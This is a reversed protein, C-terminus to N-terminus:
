GHTGGPSDDTARLQALVAGMTDDDIPSVPFRPDAATTGAPEPGEPTLEEAVAALEGLTQHDFFHRPQLRWGERTARSVVLLSLISDGGLEFFNDTVAVRDVGLVEAWVRALVREAPTQPETPAAPASRTGAPAPLARRDVKGSTGLPLEPLWVWLAPVLAAPLSRAAFARMEGDEPTAPGAEAPRDPREHGAAVLYAVLRTGTGEDDRGTVVCQGVAPHGLLAREVEGPEVRVGRIKLQGDLRGLYEIAGDARRRALDGTRYLRAGPPGDPDPVFSEATLGPRGTYGLALQVGGLHLEGVVGAPVRRGGADLIEVTTNPVPRGIPVPAEGPVCRHRTVDVAAETPGYMNHVTVGPLAAAARDVLTVDLAEGSCVLNRLARPASDVRDLVPGLMSPVFHVTGIREEDLLELLHLPDRHADPEAVVLCGGVTLPWFLEWVSVDFGAPTKHLVRAAADTGLAETMWALRNVVARHQVAVGKPRGTSGSTFLVYALSDPGPGGSRGQRATDGTGPGTIREGPGVSLDAGAEACLLARREEPDAPDLPLYAGGTLVVAHVAVVLDLGRPLVVGVTRGAGAGHARLREALGTVRDWFDQYSIDRGQWRVACARPTRAVQAAVLEPLTGAVPRAPGRAAAAAAPEATGDWLPLTDIGAAPEAVAGSLVATLAETFRAVTQPEYLDAAYEVLCSLESGDDAFHFELDFKAMGTDPLGFGEIGSRSQRATERLGLVVQYVPNRATSRQPRLEEVLAEFPLDARGYADLCVQRVRDLLGAFSPGGGADVRMALTNVFFGVSEHLDPHERGTVPAGVVLDDQGTWRYLATDLAALLVMYLTADHQRALARVGTTLAPALTFEHRGGRHSQAPPRPRDPPLTTLEPAGDLRDRWHAGLEERRTGDLRGRQWAAFDPYQVAVEPLVAPRGERAADILELLDRVLLGNSWADTVAHHLFLGLVLDDDAPRVAHVRLLPPRGLDFPVAATRDLLERAAAEADPHDTLDTVEVQPEVADADHRVQVPRGDREVLGVRLVEHRRILDRVAARLVEDGVPRRLRLTVPVTYLGPRGVIREIVWLREQAFSAPPDGAGGLHRPIPASAREDPDARRAAAVRASLGAVTPEALLDALELKIEFTERVKLLLQVALLSTGGAGFFDEGVGVRDAGLLASWFGAIVEETPNRPPEATTRDEGPGAPAPLASRDLKGHATVPLRDLWVVASPLLHEPLSRAAFARAEAAPLPEAVPVLYAVLRREGGTAVPATVVAERVGPHTTLVAALEGPEVRVGRIKVQDDGRGLFELRGDPRWRALDGTRYLRSGPPGFPDPVFRDATLGPRGVYGRGVCIGGLLLEGPVGVPVPAGERDLVRATTNPLPTGITAVPGAEPGPPATIVAHCQDDSSETVGYTNLMPVGPHAALWRAVLETPLADGTPVLWRLPGLDAAQPDALLLAIVSPVAQLVTVGGDRVEAALLAPDIAADPGVVHVRGGALLPAICQWVVVDFTAPGNQALVDGPGFGVDTLKALMHNRMGTHCIMAGKPVGTTGSTFLIYALSDGGIEVRPATAPEDAHAAPDIPVPTVRQGAPLAALLEAVAGADADLDAVLVAAGSRRLVELRRAVPQGLDLPVFAGGAQWSALVATVFGIGRPAALAVVTEPGVGEARLRHALRNARRMLEAYRVQETGCSVAIADPHAAATRAVLEPVLIGSEPDPEVPGTSLREIREREVADLVPLRTVPRDPDAAAGEALVRLNGLLQRATAEDFLDANYELELSLGDDDERASLTLDFQATGNYPAEAVRVDVGPLSPPPVLPNQLILMAQFVPHYATTRRPAVAEVVKEFPLGRRDLSEVSEAATRALLQRFSPDGSLDVRLVLTDVFFGIVHEFDPNGRDATPTGIVLDDQGGLRSLVTAYLALLTPFLTTRAGRALATLEAVTATGLRDRVRGGRHSQRAPRPRDAPLALLEPAGALKARWHEQAATLREGAVARRQRAAYDGYGLPPPAPLEPGGAVTATYHASLERVLIGTSWEDFVLHHLCLGLLHRREAVRALRVRALPAVALDFPESADAAFRECATRRAEAEPRDTLDDVTLPPEVAPRVVQVPHGNLVAFGTRLAPHRAVVAALAGRLAPVDLEGDLELALTVHYETSGDGAQDLVWLREQAFSTVHASAAATTMTTM